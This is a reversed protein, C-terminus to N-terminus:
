ATSDRCRVPQKQVRPVLGLTVYPLLCPNSAPREPGPHELNGAVGRRGRQRRGQQARPAPRRRRAPFPQRRQLRPKRPALVKCRPQRARPDLRFPRPPKQHALGALHFSVRRPRKFQLGADGGDPVSPELNRGALGAPPDLRRRPHQRPQRVGVPAHRHAQRRRRPAAQGHQNPVIRLARKRARNQCPPGRTHPSQAHPTQRQRQAFRRLLGVEKVGHM